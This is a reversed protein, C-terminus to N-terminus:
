CCCAAPSPRRAPPTSAAPCSPPGARPVIRPALAAAGVGIPVNIWFIWRWGPGGALVGGLIVGIISAIGTLSGWVGLAKNRTPGEPFTSTLISLAAPTVLASGLGQLGRATVLTAGNHALGSVLSATAFTALGAQLVRRRGLTDALRGGLLLFGGLVTAYATVVYNLSVDSMGLAQQISPLALNMVSVNIFVMFQGLCVFTLVAGPSSGARPGSRNKTAGRPAM